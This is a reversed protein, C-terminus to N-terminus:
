RALFTSRRGKGLLSGQSKSLLSDTLDAAVPKAPEAMDAWAKAKGSSVDGWRSTLWARQQTDNLKGVTDLEEPSMSAYLAERDADSLQGDVNDFKVRNVNSLNQGSWANHGMELLGHVPNKFGFLQGVGEVPDFRRAFDYTKSTLGGGQAEYEGFSLKRGTAGKTKPATALSDLFPM